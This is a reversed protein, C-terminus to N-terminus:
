AVVNRFKMSSGLYIIVKRFMHFRIIIKNMKLCMIILYFIVNRFKHFQIIIKFCM